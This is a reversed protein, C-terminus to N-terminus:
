HMWPLEVQLAEILQQCGLEPPIIVVGANHKNALKIFLETEANESDEVKVVKVKDIGVSVMEEAFSSKDEALMVLRHGNIVTSFPKKGVYPIYFKKMKTLIFM